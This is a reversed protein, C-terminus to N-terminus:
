GLWLGVQRRSLTCLRFVLLLLSTDFTDATVTEGGVVGALALAHLHLIKQAFLILELDCDPPQLFGDSLL